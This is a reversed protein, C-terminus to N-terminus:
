RIHIFHPPDPGEFSLCPRMGTKIWCTDAIMPTISSRRSSAPLFVVRGGWKCALIFFMVYTITNFAQMVALYLQFYRSVVKANVGFTISQQQNVKWPCPWCAVRKLIIWNTQQFRRRNMTTKWGLRRFSSLELGKEAHFSAHGCVNQNVTCLHAIAKPYCIAWHLMGTPQPSLAM